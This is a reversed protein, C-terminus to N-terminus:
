SARIILGALNYTIGQKQATPGRLVEKLHAPDIVRLM